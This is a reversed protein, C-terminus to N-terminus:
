DDRGGDALARIAHAIDESASNLGAAEGQAWESDSYCERGGEKEAVKAAEELIAPRAIALAAHTAAVAAARFVDAADEGLHTNEVYESLTQPRYDEPGGNAYDTHDTEVDPWPVSDRAAREIAIIVQERLEM